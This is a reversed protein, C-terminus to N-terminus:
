VTVHVHVSCNWRPVCRPLPCPPAVDKLRRVSATDQLTRRAEGLALDFVVAREGNTAVVFTEDRSLCLPGGTYFPSHKKAVKWSSSQLDAQSHWCSVFGGLLPPPTSALARFSCRRALARTCRYGLTATHPTGDCATPPNPAHAQSSPCRVERGECV